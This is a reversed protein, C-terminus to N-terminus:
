RRASPQAPPWRRLGPIPAGREGRAPMFGSLSYLPAGFLGPILYIGFAFVAVALLMRWFGLYPLPSDMKFRLYGLLYLGLMFALVIWISLFISRTLWGLGLAVDIGQLFKLSFALVVFGLVIKVSNMWGGSKPLKNLWSPFIAFLTFPLSFGLSFAFMGLVPKVAAGSAAEVLLTGVIPGVCSLSVIVTTLAFFFTGLFGGKDVQSDTKSSISSPLRLEFLGFFAAAFFAFLLFFITNTIWHTTLDTIFDAGMSTLSVLLGLLTYIAIISFGFFFANLLANRKNKKGLFFTVTMPIMLLRPMNPFSLAFWGALIWGALAQGPLGVNFFGARSAVAFGLGILILPGMARFIEGIGRLSGFATYFLEEYGWIADYGFIWMVIAGLLIGLFVSILPVSIQQLKKSM